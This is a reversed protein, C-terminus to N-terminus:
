SIALRLPLSVTIESGSLSSVSGTDRSPTKKAGVVIQAPASTPTRSEQQSDSGSEQEAPKSTMGESDSNKTSGESESKKTWVAILESPTKTSGAAAERELFQFLTEQEKRPSLISKPLLSSHGVFIGVWGNFGYGEITAKQMDVCGQPWKKLKKIYLVEKKHIRGIDRFRDIVYTQRSRVTLTRVCGSKRNIKVKEGSVYKNVYRIRLKVMVQREIEGFCEKGWMEYCLTIVLARMKM